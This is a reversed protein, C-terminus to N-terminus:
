LKREFAGMFQWINGYGIKMYIHARQIEDYGHLTKSLNYQIQLEQHLNHKDSCSTFRCTSSSISGM